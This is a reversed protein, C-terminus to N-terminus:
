MIGLKTAIDIAPNKKDLRIYAIKKNKQIHTRINIVKVNFMKEFEKKIDKKNLNRNVEFVLTNDIEIIKVTKETTIPKIIKM